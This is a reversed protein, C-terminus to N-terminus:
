SSIIVCLWGYLGYSSEIAFLVLYMLMSAFIACATFFHLLHFISEPSKMYPNITPAEKRKLLVRKARWFSENQM